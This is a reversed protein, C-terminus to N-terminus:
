TSAYNERVLREPSLLAHGSGNNSLLGTGLLQGDPQRYVRVRGVISQNLLPLRQGHGFRKAMLHDLEIAPLERLFTDMPQMVQDLTKELGCLRAMNELVPMSYVQENLRLHGVGVRRLGSLHGGVGLVRGIDQALVRIYTGKSCRVQVEFEVFIFDERTPQRNTHCSQDHGEICNVSEELLGSPRWSLLDLQSIVIFRPQREVTEGARALEYLPRGQYKLACYMPPVQQQAGLFQQLVQLLVEKNLSNIDNPNARTIYEGELDGTSTEAGLRIRAIYTKDADLLDASFKTAQGFLLPLLGTALPDLTGTHGVKEARFFRKLRMVADNSTWRLPKDFLLIGDIAQKPLKLFM